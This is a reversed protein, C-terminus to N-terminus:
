LTIANYFTTQSEGTQKVFDGAPFLYTESSLKLYRNIEYDMQLGPGKRNKMREKNISLRQM